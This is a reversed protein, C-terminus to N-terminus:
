GCLPARVRHIQDLPFNSCWENTFLIAADTRGGTIGCTGIVGLIGNEPFQHVDFFISAYAEGFVIGHPRTGGDASAVEIVRGRFVSLVTLLIFDLLGLGIDKTKEGTNFNDNSLIPLQGTRWITTFM